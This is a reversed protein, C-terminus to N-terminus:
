KRPPLDSVRLAPKGDIYLRLTGQGARPLDFIARATLSHDLALGSSGLTVIQLGLPELGRQEPALETAVYRRGKGDGLWVQSAELKRPAGLNYIQFAAVLFSGQKPVRKAYVPKLGGQSFLMEGTPVTMNALVQGDIWMLRLDGVRTATPEADIWQRVRAGHEGQPYERLYALATGYGPAVDFERVRVSHKLRKTLETDPYAKAYLEYAGWGGVAQALEFRLQALEAEKGAPPWAHNDWFERFSKWSPAALATRQAQRVAEFELRVIASQAHQNREFWNRLHTKDYRYQQFQKWGDITDISAAREFKLEDLRNEAEYRYKSRPKSGAIYAEFAEITDQQQAREFDSRDSAVAPAAAALLVAALWVVFSRGPVM